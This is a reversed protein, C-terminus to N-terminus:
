YAQQICCANQNQMAIQNVKKDAIEQIGMSAIINLSFDPKNLFADLM